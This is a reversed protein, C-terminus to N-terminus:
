EGDPIDVGAFIPKEVPHPRGEAELKRAGALIGPLAYNGEHCAYEYLPEASHNLSMEGGWAEKYLKSDQVKFEYFLQGDSWRTYRETVKGGPSIFSRQKPHSNVTEIVLTDGEYWGVADGGWKPIESPGHKAEAASKVIPIVRVDHIMETLIMVSNPSQVIQYTNNYMGNNMVPGAGGTFSMLCREPLPRIEYDDFNSSRTNAAIGAETYPIRGDTPYTIWSSRYEGKVRAYAAGPDMWFTNYGRSPNKDALLKDSSEKDVKSAGAEEARAATYTNRRTLSEAEQDTLKLKTTLATRQMTTFSTNSWFGQLDPVGWSTKPKVYNAGEKAAGAEQASAVPAAVVMGALLLKSLLRM